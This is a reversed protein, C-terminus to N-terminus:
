ERINRCESGNAFDSQKNQKVVQILPIMFYKTKISSIMLKYIQVSKKQLAFFINQVIDM